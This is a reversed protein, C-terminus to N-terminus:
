TKAAQIVGRLRKIEDQIPRLEDRVLARLDEVKKDLAGLKVEAEIIVPNLLPGYAAERADAVIGVSLGCEKAVKEDTFGDRYRKTETDYHLDLLGYMAREAKIVDPTKKMAERERQCGPCLAKKYKSDIEWGRRRFVNALTASPVNIKSGHSEEFGCTSCMVSPRQRRTASDTVVGFM